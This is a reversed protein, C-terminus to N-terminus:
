QEFHAWAPDDRQVNNMRRRFMRAMDKRRARVRETREVLRKRNDEQERLWARIGNAKVEPKSNMKVTLFDDRTPSADADWSVIESVDGSDRNRWFGLVWRREEPIYFSMIDDERLERRCFRAFEHDQVVHHGRLLYSM